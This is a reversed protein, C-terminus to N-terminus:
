STMKHSVQMGPQENTTKNKCISSYMPDDFSPQRHSLSPQKNPLVGSKNDYVGEEQDQSGIPNCFKM